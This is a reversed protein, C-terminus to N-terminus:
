DSSPEQNSPTSKRVPRDSSRTRSTDRSGRARMAALEEKDLVGDSNRDIRDFHREMPTGRLEARTLAGDGNNDMRELMQGRDRQSSLGGRQQQRGNRASVSGAFRDREPFVEYVQEVRKCFKEEGDSCAFYVVTVTLPKSSSWGDISVIFERPDHDTPVDVKPATGSPPALIVGDPGTVTFTLPDVLNNWHVDHIPDVHFGLFLESAGGTTARRGAEARLKVYHPSTSDVPVMRLATLPESPKARPVVRGRSGSVRKFPPLGLSRESTVTETEGVITRLAKRLDDGNCWGKAHLITGEGNVVVESNPSGGCSTLMANDMGDVLFPISTKLNKAARAAHARREELTMPQVFGGNEPHALTKYLYVFRVTANDKYDHAVAEVGPYSQLFKPCTLCGNVIVLTGGVPVLEAVRQLEGGPTYANLTEWNRITGGEKMEPSRDFPDGGSRQPVPAGFLPSAAVAVSLFVVSRSTNM